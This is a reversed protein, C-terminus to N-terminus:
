AGRSRRRRRDGSRRGGGGNGGRGTGTGSGGTGPRLNGSLPQGPEPEWVRTGPEPEEQAPEGTATEAAATEELRCTGSPPWPLPHSGRRRHRVTRTGAYVPLIQSVPEPLEAPLSNRPPRSPRAPDGSAPGSPRFAGSAAGSGLSGPGPQGARGPIPIAPASFGNGAPWPRNSSRIAEAARGAARYAAALNGRSNLTDPHDVGLRRERAALTLRFLLIAPPSGDPTRTPSRLNNQSDLTDLHDPGLTRQRGVLTRESLPIADAARGAALYAAALSNRANLTDPHDPGLTRELDATLPEGVAIAKPAGDGLEVLRYLTPSRLRLLRPGPGRRAPEATGAVQGLLATVQEPCPGPPRRERHRRPDPGAGRARRRGGPAAATLQGNRALWARTMGAVLRYM